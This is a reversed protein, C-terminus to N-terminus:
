RLYERRLEQLLKGRRDSDVAFPSSTKNEKNLLKNNYMYSRVKQNERDEIADFLLILFDKQHLSLSNILIGIYHKACSHNLIDKTFEEQCNFHHIIDKILESISMHWAIVSSLTETHYLVTSISNSGIFYEKTLEHIKQWALIGQLEKVPESEVENGACDYYKLPSWIPSYVISSQISHLLELRKYFDDAFQANKGLQVQAEFQETQREAEERAKQMEERQLALDNRQLRLDERQLKIQETQQKLSIVVAIFACGSIFANLAGFSDGILGCQELHRTSSCLSYAWRIIFPYLICTLILLCILGWFTTRHTKVETQTKNHEGM